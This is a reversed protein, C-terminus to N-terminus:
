TKDVKKYKKEYLSVNKSGCYPCRSIMEDTKYNTDIM